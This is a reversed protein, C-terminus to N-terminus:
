HPWLHFDWPDVGGAGGGGGDSSAYSKINGKLLLRGGMRNVHISTTIVVHYGESVVLANTQDVYLCPTPLM